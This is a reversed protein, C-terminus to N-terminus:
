VKLKDIKAALYFDNESLGQIKHTWIEVECSGWAIKLDPHHQEEEAIIAIKNAFDMAAMFNKFRFKKFLHGDSNILWDAKLQKLFQNVADEEMPPIGAECPVCKKESLDM